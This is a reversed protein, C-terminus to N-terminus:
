PEIIHPAETQHINTACTQLGAKSMKDERQPDVNPARKQVNNEPRRTMSNVAVSLPAVVLRLLGLHIYRTPRERRRYYTDDQALIAVHDCSKEQSDTIM